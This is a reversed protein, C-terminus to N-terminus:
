SFSSFTIILFALWFLMLYGGILFNRNFLPERPPENM